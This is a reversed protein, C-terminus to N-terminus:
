GERDKPETVPNKEKVVYGAGFSAILTLAGAVFTPVDIHFLSLLWVAVLVVAGGVGTATVKTTPALDGSNSNYAM